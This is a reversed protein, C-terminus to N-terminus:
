PDGGHLFLLCAAEVMAAARDIVARVPTYGAGIIEYNTITAGLWHTFNIIEAGAIGPFLYKNGGSFGVVEHPFVPGCILLQDYDNILKNLSVPVDESMMGQTIKSIESAPISGITTFTAPDDWMHNFIHTKGTMGNVVPRGILKSLQEDTMPQHTGLAVLYDLQAVSAGLYKEFLNFMLPMPMTRTSDPILILVRKGDLALTGLADQVIQATQEETLFSDPSGLGMLM